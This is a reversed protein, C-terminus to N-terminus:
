ANKTKLEKQFSSVITWFPKGNSVSTEEKQFCTGQQIDSGDIELDSEVSNNNVREQTENVEWCEFCLRILEKQYNEWGDLSLLQSKKESATLGGTDFPGADNKNQVDNNDIKHSHGYKLTVSNGDCKKM